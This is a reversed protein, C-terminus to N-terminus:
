SCRRWVELSHFSHSTVTFGVEQFDLRSLIFTRKTDHIDNFNIAISIPKVTLNLM